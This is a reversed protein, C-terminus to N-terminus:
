YNVETEENDNPGEDDDDNDIFSPPTISEKMQKDAEIFTDSRVTDNAPQVLIHSTTAVTITSALVTAATATAIYSLNSVPIVTDIPNEQM